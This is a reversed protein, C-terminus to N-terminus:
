GYNQLRPWLARWGGVPGTCIGIDLGTFDSPVHYPAYYTTLVRCHAFYPRLWGLADVVLVISDSARGPGWIWYNNNGSLVPPLHDATGLVDLAGAEGYNGAFISTPAQGARALAASQAAVVRTLQPWGFTDATTVKDLNPVDHLYAIPVIPLITQASIAISVLPAAVVLRRRLGPRPGRAIWGEAATAASAVLAPATGEAYYTKGPIWALVYVVLLASTIALFRLDPTRWLRVFGAVLLPIVLVGAFALVTAPGALRAAPSSNLQHLESAMALQPWGHGAQWAVNPAWIVAAIGAGLWPWRTGLVWRHGSCLIGAALGILLLLMLNNDELGIGAALGAGLWWHPRDRLLATTVCLLVVAWALLDPGETIGLHSLALVLPACATILAALIRGFRGAGFLVAFRAALIVVAGGALAPVIRIATPSVGLLDTVRTLLPALPPQDVYGFALHRGAEIFYLEDQLFGYRGSVALEVAVFAAAIVWVPAPLRGSGSAPPVSRARRGTGPLPAASPSALARRGAGTPPPAPTSGQRTPQGAPTVISMNV